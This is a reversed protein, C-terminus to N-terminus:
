RNLRIRHRILFESAAVSMVIIAQILQVMSFPIQYFVQLTKGTDFLLAMLFAVMAILFPDNRALFAILIGSFGYGEFFNQTLRGADGATIVFGATAALGGSLLVAGLTVSQIPVGIATAMRDNADIFRMYFGARSIRVLWWAGLTFLLAIPLDANIGGPLVPLRESPRFQSSHPFSSVPDLWPGYLLHLMLNAAVYNMLLTTIIENIGLRMKMLLSILVWGMGGALAFLFMLPLRMDEAGIQLISVAAAGIGGWIMQGEIGLNWFRVRFAIAAALGVLMLRGTLTLVSRLNAPVFLSDVFFTYVLDAPDVGVAILMATSILLGVIIAATLILAHQWMPLHQRVELVIRFRSRPPLTERTPPIVVDHM